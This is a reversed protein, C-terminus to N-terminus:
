WCQTLILYYINLNLDAKMFITVHNCLYRFKKLWQKILFWRFIVPINMEVTHKIYNGMIDLASPWRWITKIVIINSTCLIQLPDWMWEHMSNLNLWNLLKQSSYKTWQIEMLCAAHYLAFVPQNLFLTNLCLSM